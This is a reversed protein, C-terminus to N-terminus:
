VQDPHPLRGHLVPASNVAAEWLTFPDQAFYGHALRHRLDIIRRWPTDPVRERTEPTLKTASEGVVLLYMSAAAVADADNVFSEQSHGDVLRALM